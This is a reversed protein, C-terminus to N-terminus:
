ASGFGHIIVEEDTTNDDIGVLTMLKPSSLGFRDDTFQVTNGLNLGYADAPMTAEYLARAAGGKLTLVANAFAAGDASSVFYSEIVPPDKSQPHAAQIAASAGSDTSYVISYKAKRLTQTTADVTADLEPQVTWNRSYAVAVRYPPPDMDKPLAIKKLSYFDLDTYDGLATATPLAFLGFELSRDRRFSAWGLVGALLEDLAQRLTKSDDPGVVYAVAASQAAKAVLVSGTDVVITAAAPSITILYHALSFTDTMATGAVGGGAVLGNSVAGGSFTATIM